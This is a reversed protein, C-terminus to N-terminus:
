IRRERLTQKLQEQLSSGGECQADGEEGSSNDLEIPDRKGGKANVGEVVFELLGSSESGQSDGGKVGDVVFDLVGSSESGRSTDFGGKDLNERPTEIGGQSENREFSGEYRLPLRSNSGSVVSRTHLQACTCGTAPPIRPTKGRCGKEPGAEAVSACAVLEGKQESRM